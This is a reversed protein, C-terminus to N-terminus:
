RFDLFVCSCVLSHIFSPPLVILVRTQACLMVCALLLYSFNCDLHLLRYLSGLYHILSFCLSDLSCLSDLQILLSCLSLLTILFHAFHILTLLTFCIVSAALTTVWILHIPNTLVMDACRIQLNPSKGALYVAYVDYIYITRALGLSTVGSQDMSALLSLDVKTAVEELWCAVRTISQSGWCIVLHLHM